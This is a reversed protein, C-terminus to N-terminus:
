SNISDISRNRSFDLSCDSGFSKYPSSNTTPSSSPISIILGSIAIASNLLSNLPQTSIEFISGRSDFLIHFAQAEHFQKWVTAKKVDSANKFSLAVLEAAGPGAQGRGCAHSRGGPTRSDKEWYLLIPQLWEFGRGHGADGGGPREGQALRFHAQSQSGRLRLCRHQFGNRAPSVPM